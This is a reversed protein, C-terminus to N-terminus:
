MVKEIMIWGAANNRNMDGPSVDLAFRYKSNVSAPSYNDSLTGDVYLQLQMGPTGWPVDGKQVLVDYSLTFDSSIPQTLKSPYAHRKLKLWKGPAGEVEVVTPKNGDAAKAVTWDSPITGAANASLDNFFLVSKDAAYQKSSESAVAPKAATNLEDASKFDLAKYPVIVKDKGFFYNYIYGYDYRNIFHDMM